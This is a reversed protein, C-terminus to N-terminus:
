TIDENQLPVDEVINASCDLGFFFNRKLINKDCRSVCMVGRCGDGYVAIFSVFDKAPTYFIGNYRSYVFGVPLQFIGRRSRHIKPEALFGCDTL